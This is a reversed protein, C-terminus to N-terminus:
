HTHLPQETPLGTSPIMSTPTWHAHFEDERNLLSSNDCYATICVDDPPHIDLYRLYHTLFLLISIRGYGKARYSHM